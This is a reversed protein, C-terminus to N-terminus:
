GVAWRSSGYGPKTWDSNANFTDIETTTMNGTVWFKGRMRLLAEDSRGEIHNLPKSTAEHSSVRVQAEKV